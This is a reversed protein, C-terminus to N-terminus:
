SLPEGGLGTLSTGSKRDVYRLNVGVDRRLMEDLRRIGREFLHSNVDFFFDYVDQMASSIDRTRLQFPFDFDARFKSEDPSAREM